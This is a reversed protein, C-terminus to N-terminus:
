IQVKFMNNFIFKGAKKNGEWKKKLKNSNKKVM